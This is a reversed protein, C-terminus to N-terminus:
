NDNIKKRIVFKVAIKNATNHTNEKIANDFKGIDIDLPYMIGLEGVKIAEIEKIYKLDFNVDYRGIYEDKEDYYEIILKGQLKKIENKILEDINKEHFYNNSYRFAIYPKGYKFSIDSFKFCDKECSKRKKKEIFNKKFNEVDKHDVFKEMQTKFGVNSIFYGKTLIENLVLQKKNFKQQEKSFEKQSSGFYCATICIFVTAIAGIAVWGFKWRQWIKAAVCSYRNYNYSNYWKSYKDKERKENYKIHKELESKIIKDAFEKYKGGGEEQAKKAEKEEKEEQQQQTEKETKKWDKWDKWNNWRNALIISFLEPFFFIRKKKKKVKNGKYIKCSEADFSEVLGDSFDHEDRALWFDYPGPKMLFKILVASVDVLSFTLVLFIYALLAFSNKLMIKHLALSLSLIDPKVVHKELSKILKDADDNIGRIYSEYANEYIKIQKEIGEIHEIRKEKQVDLLEIEKEAKKESVQLDIKRQENSKESFKDTEYKQSTELNDRRRKIQYNIDDIDKKNEEIEKLIPQYFDENIQRWRPGKGVKKDVRYGAAENELMELYQQAEAQYNRRDENLLRKQKNLNAIGSEAEDRLSELIAELESNYVKNTSVSGLPTSEVKINIPSKLIDEKQKYLEQIKKSIDEKRQEADKKIIKINYEYDNKIKLEVSEHFLFLIAPHSITMGIVVSILFRIIFQGLRNKFSAYARYGTLLARDISLIIFAWLCGISIIISINSTLTSITFCAAVFAFVTPVLVTAGIAVHKRQESERCQLLIDTSSGSLWFFLRKM